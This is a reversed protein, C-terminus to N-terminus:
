DYFGDHVRVANEIGGRNSSILWDFDAKFNEHGLGPKRKGSLFKSRHYEKFVERWWAQDPFQALLAAAKQVRRPSLTEVAPVNDPTLTNYLYALAHASPWPAHKWSDAASKSRSSSSTSTSKNRSRTDEEDETATTTSSLAGNPFLGADEQWASAIQEARGPSLEPIVWGGARSLWLKGRSMKEGWGEREPFDAVLSPLTETPIFGETKHRKSWCSARVHLALALPGAALMAPRDALDDDFWVRAM